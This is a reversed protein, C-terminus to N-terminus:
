IGGKIQALLQKYGSPDDPGLDLIRQITRAADDRLGAELQLEGLLDYQAIAQKNMRLKAYFFALKEHLALEQPRLQTMDQLFELIKDHKGQQAYLAIVKDLVMLANDSRGLKFYLDILSLLAKDDEPDLKVLKGYVEAARAWDVRQMYIDGIRHLIDIQWFKPNSSNPALRLAEQYKELSRGIQALQYYADALVKYQELAADINNQEIYLDVLKSRVVVDMPAVKLVKQYISTVQKLDGRVYYVEAVALYKRISNEIAEQRMYIEAMRLHLPLYFPEKQIALFCTEVATMLMNRRMYETTDTMASLVAESNRIQLFEVWASVSTGNGMGLVQRAAAIKQEYDKSSLFNSLSKVFTLTQRDDGADVYNDILSQYLQNTEEISERGTNKLDIFRLVEVFSRLANNAENQNRYCEGLAFNVGLEYSEEAKAQNFYEIAQDYQGNRMYLNGLMFFVSASKFGGEALKGYAEIARDFDGRTQWDIANGILSDIESKSLSLDDHGTVDEFIIGALEELAMQEVQERPNRPIDSEEEEVLEDFSFFGEDVVEQEGRMEAEATSIKVMDQQVSRISVGNELARLAAQAFRDDPSLRLAGQLYQAAKKENDQEQFIAGLSILEAVALDKKDQQRYAHALNNRAQIQEPDARIAKEWNEIASDLQGAKAYMNGTYVYTKAAEDLRGTRELIEGMKNLANQNSPDTKLVRQLARIASEHQELEFYATSLGILAEADNPFEELAARYARVASPWNGDWSFNAAMRM